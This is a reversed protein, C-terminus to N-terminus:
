AAADARATGTRRMALAVFASCCSPIASAPISPPTAFEEAKPSKPIPIPKSSIRRAMPTLRFDIRAYGDLELTRYIRKATTQIRGGIGAASGQGSRANIGRREQYDTDHKVKETAIHWDGEAMNDFRLEWM